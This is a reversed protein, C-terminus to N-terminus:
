FKKAMIKQAYKLYEVDYIGFLRIFDKDALIKERYRHGYQAKHRNVFCVIDYYREFSTAATFVHKIHEWEGITKWHHITEFLTM